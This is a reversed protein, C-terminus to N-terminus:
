LSNHNSSPTCDQYRYNEPCMMSIAFSIVKLYSGGKHPGSCCAPKLRLVNTWYQITDRISNLQHLLLNSLKKKQHILYRSCVFLCLIFSIHYYLNACCQHLFQSHPFYNLTVCMAGANNTQNWGPGWFHSSTQQTVGTGSTSRMRM